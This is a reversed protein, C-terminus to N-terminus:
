ARLRKRGGLMQGFSTVGPVTLQQRPAPAPGPMPSPGSKSVYATAALAASYFKDPTNPPHSPDQSLGASSASGRTQSQAATPQVQSSALAPAAALPVVPAPEPRASAATGPQQMPQEKPVTPQGGSVGTVRGILQAAGLVTGDPASAGSVAAAPAEAPAVSAVGAAPATAPAQAPKQVSWNYGTAPKQNRCAM